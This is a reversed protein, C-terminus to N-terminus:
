ALLLKMQHACALMFNGSRTLNPTFKREPKQGCLVHKKSKLDLGLELKLEACLVNFADTKLKAAFDHNRFLVFTLRSLQTQTM